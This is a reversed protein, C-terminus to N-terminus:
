RLSDSVLYAQEYLMQIESMQASSVGPLYLWAGLQRAWIEEQPDQQHGGIVLLVQSLAAISQCVETLESSALPSEMDVWAMQFKIRRVAAMAAAEDTCVITEWGADRAARTLGDRMESSASVILCHALERASEPQLGPQRPAGAATPRSQIELDNRM